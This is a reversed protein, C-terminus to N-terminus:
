ADRIFQVNEYDLERMPGMANGRAGSVTRWCLRLRSREKNRHRPRANKTGGEQRRPRPGAGLVPCGHASLRGTALDMPAWALWAPLGAVVCGRVSKSAASGAIMGNSADVAFRPVLPARAPNDRRAAELRCCCCLGWRPRM